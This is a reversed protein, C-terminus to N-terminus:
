PMRAMTFPIEVHAPAGETHPFAEPAGQRRTAGANPNSGIRDPMPCSTAATAHRVTRPIGAPTHRFARQIGPTAKPTSHHHPTSRSAKEGSAPANSPVTAAPPHPSLRNGTCQTGM